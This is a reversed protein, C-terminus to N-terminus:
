GVGGQVREGDGRPVGLLQIQEVVVHTAHVHLEDAQPHFEEHHLSIHTVARSQNVAALRLRAEAVDSAEREEDLGEEEEVCPLYTRPRSQSRLRGEVLRHLPVLALLEAVAKRSELVTQLHKPAESHLVPAVRHHHQALAPPPETPTQLVHQAVAQRDVALRDLRLAKEVALPEVLHDTLTRPPVSTWVGAVVDQRHVLLLRRRDFLAPLRVAHQVHVLLSQGVEPQKQGDLRLVAVKERQVAIHRLLRLRTVLSHPTSLFLFRRPALVRGRGIRERRPKVSPTVAVHLRTLRLCVRRGEFRLAIM